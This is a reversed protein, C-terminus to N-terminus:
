TQPPTPFRRPGVRALRGSVNNIKSIKEIVGFVDRRILIFDGLSIKEFLTRSVRIQNNNGPALLFYHFPFTSRKNIVEFKGVWGYGRKRMTAARWNAWILFAVFPTVTVFFYEILRIYYDLSFSVSTQHKYFILPGILAAIVTILAIRWWNGKSFLPNVTPPYSTKYKSYFELQKM